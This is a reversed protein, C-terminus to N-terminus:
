DPNESGETEQPDSGPRVVDAGDSNDGSQDNAAGLLQKKAAALGEPTLFEPNANALDYPAGLVAPMAVTREEQQQPASASDGGVGASNDEPQRGEGSDVGDPSAPQQTSDTSGEPQNPQQADQEPQPVLKSISAHDYAGTVADALTRIDAEGRYVGDSILPITPYEFVEGSAEMEKIAKQIAAVQETTPLEPETVKEQDQQKPQPANRVTAGLGAGKLRGNYECVSEHNVRCHDCILMRCSKTCHQINNFGGCSGCQQNM